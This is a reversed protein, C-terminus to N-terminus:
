SQGEKRQEELYTIKAALRDVDDRLKDVDDAFADVEYRSPVDRSEEQLYESINQGITSRAQRAWRGLGRALDGVQHAAADGIVGSLEEEIDPRGFRLLRQFGQAIEADGTLDVSGDRIAEEGDDGALRMLGLLSGSIAVDPDDAYDGTMTISRRHIHFYAALGTNRIRLAIVVGNLAETLERAPTTASIRRNIMNILPRFATELTDM